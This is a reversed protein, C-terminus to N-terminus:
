LVAEELKRRAGGPLDQRQLATAVRERLAPCQVDAPAACAAVTQLSLGEWYYRNDSGFGAEIERLSAAAEARAEATRELALLAHSRYAAVVAANKANANSARYIGIARDYHALASAADGLAVETRALNSLRAAARTSDKGFIREMATLASRQLPLAEAARGMERLADAYNGDCIMVGAHDPGYLAVYLSRSHLYAAAAQAYEGMAFHLSGLNGYSTALEDHAEGFLERVQEIHRSRLELARAYDGASAAAEALNQLTRLMELTPTAFIRQQQAYVQELISVARQPNGDRGYSQGLMSAVTLTKADADGYRQRRLDWLAQWPIHAERYRGLRHLLEGEHLLVQECSPPNKPLAQCVSQAEKLTALAEDHRDVSGLQAAWGTLAEVLSISAPAQRRLIAVADQLLALAQANDPPDVMVAVRGSAVMADAVEISDAGFLTRRRALASAFLQAAQPYDGTREAVQGLTLEVSSLLAERGALDQRARQVADAIIQHRDRERAEATSPALVELVSNLYALQAQSEEAAIRARQAERQAREAQWLTGAIGAVVVAALMMAAAVGWRNRVVFRRFRYGISPARARIPRRAQWRRLDDALADISAYRQEPSPALAKMVITDLDGRLRGSFQRHGDTRDAGGQPSRSPPPIEATADVCGAPRPPRGSLVRYLLAGFGYVDMATSPPAGLFQEPAAYEPTLARLATATQDPELEDTLRAIGFDLLRVHGDEDVLVNSPKIDRHIVLNRHAYALAEAVQLLLAIRAELPMAQRICWTDIREGEVLALALWPTGDEAVGADYLPAIYPHRLRSLLQQERLFRERGGQALAGLTLVKVAAVQDLPPEASTARYVAAMGGRGIERQLCWRGLRRGSLGPDPVQAQFGDNLAEDLPGGNLTHAALLREVRERVESPLGLAQLRAARQDVPLDLLEDLIRDAERWAAKEGADM